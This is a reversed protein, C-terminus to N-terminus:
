RGLHRRNRKGFRGVVVKPMEAERNTDSNPEHSRPDRKKLREDPRGSDRSGRVRGARCLGQGLVVLALSRKPGPRCGGGPALFAPSCPHVPPCPTPPVASRGAPIRKPLGAFGAKGEPDSAALRGGQNVRTKGPKCGVEGIKRNEESPPLPPVEQEMAWHSGAPPVLSFVPSICARRGTPVPLSFEIHGESAGTGLDPTRAM